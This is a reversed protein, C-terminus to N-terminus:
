RDSATLLETCESYNVARERVNIHQTFWAYLLAYSAYSAYDIM